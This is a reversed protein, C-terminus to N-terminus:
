LFDLKKDINFYSNTAKAILKNNEDFVDIDYVLINKGQKIERAIAIIKKCDLAPNLYTINSSTTVVYNGRSWAASGGVIDALTFICGGHVSNGPNIHKKEIDVEAKAYGKSISLIKVGIEKAFGDLNNRYKIMKEFDINSLVEFKGM